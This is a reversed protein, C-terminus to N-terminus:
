YSCLFSSLFHLKRSSCWSSKKTTSVIDTCGCKLSVYQSRDSLLSKILRTDVGYWTLKHILVSLDVKDFAKRLDIAVLICIKGSDIENYLFDTIAIIEHSTSHSRRFGFQNNSLLQNCEFYNTLQPAICKEFLKCIAPQISVPRLDNPSDPNPKKPLAIVKSLKLCSPIDFTCIMINFIGTLYYLFLPCDLCFNLMRRCIGMTDCSTSTRNRGLRSLTLPHLLLLLSVFGM